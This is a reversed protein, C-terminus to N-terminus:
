EVSSQLSITIIEVEGGVWSKYCSLQGRKCNNMYMYDIIFHFITFECPIV